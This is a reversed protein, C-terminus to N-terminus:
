GKYSIERRVANPPPTKKEYGKLAVEKKCFGCIAM